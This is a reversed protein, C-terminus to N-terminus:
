PVETDIILEVTEGKSILRESSELDGSARIANGSKSIRAGVVFTTFDSLKRQPMLSHSDDMSFSFPLADVPIRLAAIPMPPGDPSKAFVFVTDNQNLTELLDSSIQVVGSVLESVKQVEQNLSSESEVSIAEVGSEALRIKAEAVGSQLTDFLQQDGVNARMLASWRDIALQYDGSAFAATGGLALGKGHNPDIELARNILTTPEGSLDGRAVLGRAEAYDVLIAPDQPAIQYAREWANASEEFKHMAKYTRGLMGWAETDTPNKKIHEVIQAALSILEDEDAPKNQEALYADIDQGDVSGIHNYLLFAGLPILLVILASVYRAETGVSPTIESDAAVEELVRNELENKSLEYQENSLNGVSYDDELERLQDKLLRLNTQSQSHHQSERKKFLSILLVLAIFCSICAAVIQFSTM